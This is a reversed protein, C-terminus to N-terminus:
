EVIEITLKNSTLLEPDWRRDVKTSAMLTYKGTMTMDYRANVLAPYNWEGGAPVPVSSGGLGLGFKKRHEGFRTLPVAHGIEDLLTFDWLDWASEVDCRREIPSINKVTVAIMVASGARVVGGGSLSLSWRSKAKAGPLIFESAISEGRNSPDTFSLALVFSSLFVIRRRIM